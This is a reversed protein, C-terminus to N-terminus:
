TFVIYFPLQSNTSYSTYGRDRFNPFNKPPKELILHVTSGLRVEVNLMQRGLLLDLIAM